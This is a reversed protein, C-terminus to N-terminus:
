KKFYEEVEASTPVSEAAVRRSVTIAATKAAYDAAEAFSDSGNYKNIFSGIFSDGAATTDVAKGINYAPKFVAKNGRSYMYGKEGLTIIVTGVGKRILVDAAKVYDEDCRCDIGTMAAAEHENPIIIDTYRYIEEPLERCPAPNLVTVCGCEKALKCAHLVTETPIELQMLVADAWEFHERKKNLLEPSVLANAGEHLIICNDGGCVTIVAAGTTTKDTAEGVFDIGDKKLREVCGAGDTDDGVAGLLRVHAGQKQAAFAQNLGKGGYTRLFGSGSITEGMKPMRPATITLDINISGAVLINKM